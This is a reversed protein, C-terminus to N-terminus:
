ASLTIFSLSEVPTYLPRAMPVGLPLVTDCDDLEYDVLEPEIEQSPGLVVAGFFPLALVLRESIEVCAIRPVHGKLVVEGFKQTPHIFSEMTLQDDVFYAEKAHAARKVASDWRDNLPGLGITAMRIKEASAEPMTDLHKQLAMSQVYISPM